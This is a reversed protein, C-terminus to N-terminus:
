SCHALVLQRHYSGQLDAVIQEHKATEQDLRAMYNSPSLVRAVVGTGHIVFLVHEHRANESAIATRYAKTAAAKAIQDCVLKLAASAKPSAPEPLPMVAQVPQDKAPDVSVTTPPTDKTTTISVHSAAPTTRSGTTAVSALGGIMAFLLLGLLANQKVVTRLSM